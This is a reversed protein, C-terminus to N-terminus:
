DVILAHAAILSACYHMAAISSFCVVVYDSFLSALLVDYEQLTHIM